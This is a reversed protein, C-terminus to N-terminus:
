ILRHVNEIQVSTIFTLLDSALNLALDALNKNSEMLNQVDLYLIM